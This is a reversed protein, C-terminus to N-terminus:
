HIDGIGSQIVRPSWNLIVDSLEDNVMTLVELGQLSDPTCNTLTKEKIIDLKELIEKEIEKRVQKVQEIESM